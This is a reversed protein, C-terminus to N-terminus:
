GNKLRGKMTCTLTDSSEMNVAAAFCCSGYTADSSSNAVMFGLVTATEGATFPHVVCWTDNAFSDTSASITAASVLTLGDETCQTYDSYGSATAATCSTKVCVIGRLEDSSGGTMWLVVEGIGENNAVQEQSM